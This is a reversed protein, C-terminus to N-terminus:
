RASRLKTVIAEGTQRSDFSRLFDLSMTVVTELELGGLLEPFTSTLQGLPLEGSEGRLQPSQFVSGDAFWIPLLNKFTNVGTSFNYELTFDGIWYSLGTAVDTAKLKKTEVKLVDDKISVKKVGDLKQVEAVRKQILTTISYVLVPPKGRGVLQEKTELHEGLTEALTGKLIAAQDPRVGKRAELLDREIKVRNSGHTEKFVSIFGAKVTRDLADKKVPYVMRKEVVPFLELIKQYSINENVSEVAKLSFLLAAEFEFDRLLTLIGRGEGHCWEGGLRDVHPHGYKGSYGGYEHYPRRSKNVFVAQGGDGFTLKIEFEGFEHIKKTQSHECYMPHTTILLQTGDVRIDKVEPIKYLNDIVRDSELTDGGLKKLQAELAVAQTVSGVMKKRHVVVLSKLPQLIKTNPAVFNGEYMEELTPFAGWGLLILTERLIKRYIDLRAETVTGGVVPFLVYLENKNILEAVAYGSTPDVIVMGKGSPEFLYGLEINAQGAVSLGWMKSPIDQFGAENRARSYLHIIFSSRDRRGPPNHEGQVDWLYLDEVGNVEFPRGVTSRTVELFRDKTEYGHGWNHPRINM